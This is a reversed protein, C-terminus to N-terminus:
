RCTRWERWTPNMEDYERRMADIENETHVTEGMIENLNEITLIQLSNASIGVREYSRRAEDDDAWPFIRLFAMPASENTEDVLLTCGPPPVPEKGANLWEASRYFEGVVPECIAELFVAYEYHEKFGRLLLAVVSADHAMKFRPNERLREKLLRRQHGTPVAMMEYLSPVLGTSYRRDAGLPKQMLRDVVELGFHQLCVRKAIQYKDSVTERVIREEAM